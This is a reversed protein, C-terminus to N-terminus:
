TARSRWLRLVSLRRGFLLLLLLVMLAHPVWLGTAFGIKGQTIWAQCISLTNTYILYVLIAAILNNSRGARPNVFSMPIALLSLLLAAVPTGIRAALEGRYAPLPASLLQAVSLMRPKQPLEGTEPSRIRVAYREFEMVRYDPTGPVGEYRRGNELVVFRAGQEDTELYGESSVMVGLRGHQMTSVFVNKVRGDEGAGTEVFFVRQGGASERFVGPAVRAADDRNNSRERFEVTKLQAWPAIVLTTGAIVVVLPLAFLLEPRVWATLPLGSAFWVVMESDRYSRSLTSLIAIFLTLSLVIPLQAISGFGIMALVVDSALRGGAAQSLLRILVTSILIAFLAVFVAAATHAFERRAARLFIM